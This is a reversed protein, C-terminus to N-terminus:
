LKFILSIDYRTYKIGDGRYYIHISNGNNYLYRRNWGYGNQLIVYNNDENHIYAECFYNILNM